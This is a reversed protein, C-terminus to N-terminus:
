AWDVCANKFHSKRRASTIVYNTSYDSKLGSIQLEFGTM